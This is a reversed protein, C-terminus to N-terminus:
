IGFLWVKGTIGAVLSLVGPIVGAAALAAWARNVRKGPPFAKYFAFSALFGSLLMAQACVIKYLLSTRRVGGVCHGNSGVLLCPNAKKAQYKTKERQDRSTESGEVSAAGDDSSISGGSVRLASGVGSLFGNSM